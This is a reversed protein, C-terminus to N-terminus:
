LHKHFYHQRARALCRTRSTDSTKFDCKPCKWIFISNGELDKQEIQENIRDIMDKWEDM